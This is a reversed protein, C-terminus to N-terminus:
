LAPLVDEGFRAILDGESERQVQLRVGDVGEVGGLDSLTEACDEPTGAIAYRRAAYRYTAAPLERVLKRNTSIGQQAHERPEYERVIRRFPERHAEPVCKGEMTFQLSHHISAAIAPELEEVARERSAAVNVHGGIWIEVDDLTRGASALGRDLHALATEVVETSVGLGVIVEDIDQVEARVYAGGGLPVQVTSGTELTEIAEVAEDIESQQNRVGEIEAQIAQKEQELAELQQQLEQMAGGGGGGLSM